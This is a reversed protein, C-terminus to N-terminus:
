QYSADFFAQVPEVDFTQDGHGLAVAYRSASVSLHELMGVQDQRGPRPRCITTDINYRTTGTSENDSYDAEM